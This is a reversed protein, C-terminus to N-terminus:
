LADRSHTFLVSGGEFGLEDALNELFFLWEVLNGGFMTDMTIQQSVPAVLGQRRQGADKRVLGFAIVGGCGSSVLLLDVFEIGLDTAQGGLQRPQFFCM